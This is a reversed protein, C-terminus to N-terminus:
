LSKRREVWLVNCLMYNSHAKIYQLLEHTKIYYTRGWSSVTLREEDMARVTVYHARAGATCAEGEYLPLRNKQWFKPFNMGVGLIVPIDEALMHAMRPLMKKGRLGWRARYPLAEKRLLRNLGFALTFGDIGWGPLLPLYRKRLVALKQEYEAWPIPAGSQGTLYLFLDLAAVVGCGCRAMTKDSAWRQNGGTRTEGDKVVQPYPKALLPM